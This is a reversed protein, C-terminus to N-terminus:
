ELSYSGWPLGPQPIIGGMNEINIIVFVNTLIDVHGLVSEMEIFNLLTKKDHRTGADKNSCSQM